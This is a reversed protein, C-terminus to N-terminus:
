EACTPMVGSRGSTRRKAHVCVRQTVVVSLGRHQIERRIREVNEAHSGPVPRLQVIHKEDVGLGRIVRILDEGTALVEQGGTMAVLANDLIVVTMNANQRAAGILASMGSHIFTSDGITAIVPHAGAKAAGIAMGISAGMDVCADIANYPPFAALTYCGIDGFFYPREGDSAAEVV